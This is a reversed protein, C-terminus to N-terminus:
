NQNVLTMEEILHKAGAYKDIIFLLYKIDVCVTRQLQPEFNIDGSMAEWNGDFALGILEGNGNIVPSGSNGGTIDNNTIFNVRMEGNYAYNGYDKKQFLEKLKAPVHFEWDNPIEKDMVGEITTYYRYEIADKPKYGCVKGYTLRMSSNANPYFKKDPKMLRLAAVYKRNAADLKQEALDNKVSVANYIEFFENMLIFVPDKQILEPQNVLIDINEAKAVFSKSYLKEVYATWNGKHKKHAKTLSNPHLNIEVNEFYLQLMAALLKKDTNLNFDKYFLNIEQKFKEKTKTIKDADKIEKLKTYYTNVKWTTSMVESGNYAAEMFYKNYAAYKSIEKYAEEINNLVNGYKQKRDNDANVWQMFEDEQQSKKEIIRNQKLQKTQGIYYKWYNSIRAQKSAYKIFTAKDADMDARIIQLKQTRIKVVTPGIIDQEVKTGFSSLYRDTSGPYGMIMAYDGDKVGGMSVPLHHKPKLPINNKSYQAINGEPNTYVRFLCFDAKHRPWMWNDTDAGYKGISNPPTGVLRVDQYENYVFMYFENGEFFSKVIAKYETNKIAEQQLEKGIASIMKNRSTESMTDNLKSLIKETVDEIRVLFKVTLGENPLEEVKNMAWFGNNIYDNQVSSHSQIQGYGCHHNTLLLGDKSIIEGTCGNGFQVIADKLSSHNINYIEEATLKCGQKQMDVYNLREIFMPLWMGEDAFSKLSILILFAWFILKKM